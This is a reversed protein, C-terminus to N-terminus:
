VGVRRNQRTLAHPEFVRAMELVLGRWAGVRQVRGSVVLASSRLVTAFIPYVKPPVIVQVRGSEDELTIFTFGRATPPRQFATRVGAVTGHEGSLRSIPMVGARELQARHFAMVHAGTSAGTTAADWASLELPSLWALDPLDPPTELLPAGRGPAGYAGRLDKLRWLEDRRMGFHDLAGSKGLLELVDHQVPARSYLDELDHFPQAARELLLLRAADTSVGTISELPFRVAYTDGTPTTVRELAFGFVSSELSPPLFSVGHRQAEHVITQRSYM